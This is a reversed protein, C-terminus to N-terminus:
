KAPASPVDPIMSTGPEPAGQEPVVLRNEVERVGPVRRAVDEAARHEKADNARGTLTVVGDRVAVKMNMAQVRPDDALAHSVATAIQEDGPARLVTSPPAAPAAAGSAPTDAEDAALCPTATAVLVLAANLSAICRQRCAPSLRRLLGLVM